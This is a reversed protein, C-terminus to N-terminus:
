RAGPGPREAGGDLGPRDQTARDAPRREPSSTDGFAPPVKRLHRNMSRWLLFTAALLITFLVAALPGPQVLDDPPPGQAVFAVLTTSM